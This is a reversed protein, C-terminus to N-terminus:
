GTSVKPQRPRGERVESVPSPHDRNRIDEHIIESLAALQEGQAQTLEELRKVRVKLNLLDKRTM